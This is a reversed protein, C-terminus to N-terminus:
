KGHGDSHLGIMLGHVLSGCALFDLARLGCRTGFDASEDIVVTEFQLDTTSTHHMTKQFFEFARTLRGLHVLPRDRLM